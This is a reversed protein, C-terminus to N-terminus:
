ILLPEDKGEMIIFPLPQEPLAEGRVAVPDAGAWVPNAQVECPQGSNAMQGLLKLSGSNVRNLIIVAVVSFM